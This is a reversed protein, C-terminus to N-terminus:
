FVEENGSLAERNGKLGKGDGNLEPRQTVKLTEVDAKLAEGDGGRRKTAMILAAGDSKIM